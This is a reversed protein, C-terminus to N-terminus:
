KEEAEGQLTKIDYETILWNYLTQPDINLSATEIDGSIDNTVEIYTSGDKNKEIYGYDEPFHNCHLKM